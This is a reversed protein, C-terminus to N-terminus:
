GFNQSLSYASLLCLRHNVKDPPTPDPLSLGSPFEVASDEVLGALAVAAAGGTSGGGRTPMRRQQPLGDIQNWSCGRGGARGRPGIATARVAQSPRARVRYTRTSPADRPGHTSETRDSSRRSYLRPPGPPSANAQPLRRRAAGLGPGTLSIPSQPEEDLCHLLLRDLAAEGSREVGAGHDRRTRPTRCARCPTRRVLARVPAPAKGRSWQPARDPFRCCVPTPRGM